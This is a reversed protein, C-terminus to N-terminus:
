KAKSGLTMYYQGGNKTHITLVNSDGSYSAADNLVKLMLAGTGKDGSGTDGTVSISLTRDSGNAKWKGSFDENQATKGKLSGNAMFEIYYSNARFLITPDQLATTNSATYYINTVYWTHSTFIEDIDDEDSCAGLGLALTAFLLYRTIRRVM